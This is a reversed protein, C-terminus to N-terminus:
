PVLEGDKFPNSYAPNNIFTTDTLTHLFAIVQKIETETLSLQDHPNGTNSVLMEIHIGPSDKKVNTNYQNMVDELTKFRGDHMYPATLAINRLSPVKFKGNDKPNGTVGGLGNDAFVNDLGNNTILGQRTLDKDAHCDFCNATRAMLPTGPMVPPHPKFFLAEGAREEPTLLEKAAKYRDYKSNWSVLTREFQGIAKLINEETIQSSGFAKLFLPPYTSTNQLKNVSRSLGQHMEIPSEMPIRAQEELSTAGGDWNFNKSWALNVLSMTNRIGDGGHAGKSLALGGDTFAHKQQHCSGCSITNNASLRKEYFLMRGLEVGEVTLPNDKPTPISTGYEEPSEIRLPTTGPVSDTETECSTTLLALGIFLSLYQKM